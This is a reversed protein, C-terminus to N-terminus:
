HKIVRDRYSQFDEWGKASPQKLDMFEGASTDIAEWGNEKCLAVIKSVVSGGGRVHLMISEVTDKKGLSFEISYGEGKDEYSGWLGYEPNPRSWVIAPYEKILKEKV